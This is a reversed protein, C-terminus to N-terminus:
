SSKQDRIALRTLFILSAPFIIAANLLFWAFTLMYGGGEGFSLSSLFGTITYIGMCLWAFSYIYQIISIMAISEKFKQRLIIAKSIFSPTCIIIAVLLMWLGETLPDKLFEKISYLEDSYIYIVFFLINIVSVLFGIIAALPYKM